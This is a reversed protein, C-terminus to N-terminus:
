SGKTLLAELQDPSLNRGNRGPSKTPTTGKKLIRNGRLEHAPTAEDRAADSPTCAAGEQEGAALLTADQEASGLDSITNAVTRVRYVVRGPYNVASGASESAEAGRTAAPARSFSNPPFTTDEDIPSIVPPLPSPTYSPRLPPKYPSPAFLRVADLEPQSTNNQTTPLQSTTFNSYLPTPPIQQNIRAPKNNEIPILIFSFVPPIILYIKCFSVMLSGQLTFSMM